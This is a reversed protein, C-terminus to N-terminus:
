QIVKKIEIKTGDDLGYSGEVVVRDGFQVGSIIEVMDTNELGLSVEQRRVTNDENVVFVYKNELIANQPVVV